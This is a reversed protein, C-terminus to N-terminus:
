IYPGQGWLMTRFIQMNFPTTPFFPFLIPYFSSFCFASYYTVFLSVVSECTPELKFIMKFIFLCSAVEGVMGPIFVFGIGLHWEEQSLPFFFQFSVM